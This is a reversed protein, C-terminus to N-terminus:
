ELILYNATACFILVALCLAQSMELFLLFSSKSVLPSPKEPQPSTTAALTQSDTM